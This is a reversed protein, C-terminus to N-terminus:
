TQLRFINLVKHRFEENMFIYIFPRIVSNIFYSRLFVHYAILAPKSLKDPIDGPNSYRLTVIVLFPFYSLIFTLTVMRMIVTNQRLSTEKIDTPTKCQDYNIDLICNDSISRNLLPRVSDPTDTRYTIPATLCRLNPDSSSSCTHNELNCSKFQKLELNLPKRSVTQKEVQSTPIISQTGQGDNVEGVSTKVLIVDTSMNPLEINGDSTASNRQQEYEYSDRNRSNMSTSPPVGTIASVVSMRLLKLKKRPIPAVLHSAMYLKRGILIYFTILLIFIVIHGGFLFYNFALPIMKNKLYYNSILCTKGEVYTGEAGPVPMTYTMTGYYILSPWQTLVALVVAFVCTRRAYAIGLNMGKFPRCVLLYRDVAIAVLMFSYAASVTYTTFRSVKCLLHHDFTLVNWLIASEVAMNFGCSVIDLLALALIFVTTKCLKWKCTFIYVVVSNGIFGVVLYIVILSFPYVFIQLLASKTAEFVPGKRLIIIESQVSSNTTSTIFLNTVNEM